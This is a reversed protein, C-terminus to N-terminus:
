MKHNNKGRFGHYLLNDDFIHLYDGHHFFNENPKQICFRGLTFSPQITILAPKNARKPQKAKRIEIERNLANAKIQPHKVHDDPTAAPFVNENFFGDPLKLKKLGKKQGRTLDPRVDAGGASRGYLGVTPPPPREAERRPNQERARDRRSTQASM